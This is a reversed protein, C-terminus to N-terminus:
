YHSLNVNPKTICKPHTTSSPNQFSNPSTVLQQKDRDKFGDDYDDDDDYGEDMWNQGKVQNHFMETTM